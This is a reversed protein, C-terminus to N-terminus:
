LYDEMNMGSSDLWELYEESPEGLTYTTNRTKAVKKKLDIEVLSSTSIVVGDSFREKEDDYIKGHLYKDRLEPAVFPNRNDVGVAWNEIRPM